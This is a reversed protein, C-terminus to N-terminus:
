EALDIIRDERSVVNLDTDEWFEVFGDEDLGKIELKVVGKPFKRTEDEDLPLTITDSDVEMDKLSWRKLEAGNKWLSAVLTTNEVAEEFTVTIPTNSGQLIRLESDESINKSQKM